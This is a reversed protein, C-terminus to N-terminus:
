CFFVYIYHQITMTNHLYLPPRKVASIHRIKDQTGTEAEIEEFTQKEDMSM